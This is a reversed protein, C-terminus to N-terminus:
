DKFDEEGDGGDDVYLTQCDDVKSNWFALVYFQDLSEILGEEELWAKVNDDDVPM